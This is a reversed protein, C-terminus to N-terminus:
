PRGTATRNCTFDQWIYIDAEEYNLNYSFATKVEGMVSGLYDCTGNVYGEGKNESTYNGPTETVTVGHCPLKERDFASSLTFNVAVEMWTGNAAGDATKLPTRILTLDGPIRWRGDAGDTIVQWGPPDPCQLLGEASSLFLSVFPLLRLWPPSFAAAFM